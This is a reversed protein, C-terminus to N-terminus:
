KGLRTLWRRLRRGKDRPIGMRELYGDVFALIEVPDKLYRREGSPVHEILGRWEPTEGPIERPEAWMRLIFVHTHQEFLAM